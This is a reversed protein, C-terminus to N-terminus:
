QMKRYHAMQQMTLVESLRKIMTKEVEALELRAAALDPHDTNEYKGIIREQHARKDEIIRAVQPEQINNLDLRDKLTAVDPLATQAIRLSKFYFSNYRLALKKQLLQLKGKQEDNLKDKILAFSQEYIRKVDPKYSVEIGKVKADTLVIIKKIEDQQKSDLRLDDTLREMIRKVRDESHRSRHTESRELQRELYIRTGLSGAFIGVLFILTVSIILKLKNM